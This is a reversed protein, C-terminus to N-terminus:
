GQTSWLSETHGENTVREMLCCLPLLRLSSLLTSPFKLGGDDTVFWKTRFFLPPPLSCYLFLLLVIVVTPFHTLGLRASTIIEILPLYSHKQKSIHEERLHVRAIVTFSTLTLLESFIWRKIINRPYNIDHKNLSDHKM